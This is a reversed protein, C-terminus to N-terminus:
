RVCGADVRRARSPLDEARYLKDLPMDDPAWRLPSPLIAVLYAIQSATLRGAPKKFHYRAAAGIGYVGPGWEAVNLYVEMIQRKGWVAEILYTFPIELVKRVPDSNPWLYVNKATQMSITSAGRLGEGRQWEAYAKNVADWDVGGHRCFQDDESAIATAALGRPMKDLPMWEQHWGYGQVGRLVMLPTAPLRWFLPLITALVMWGFVIGVLGWLAMRVYPRVFDWMVGVM